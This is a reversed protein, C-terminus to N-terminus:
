AAAVARELAAPTVSYHSGHWTVQGHRLVLAQPSEHRVGFRQAVAQSITRDSQVTLIYFAATSTASDLWAELEDLAWASTGCTRSHKLLVVPRAFSEQVVAELRDLSSLPTLTHPM